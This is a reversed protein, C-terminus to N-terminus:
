TIFRELVYLGEDIAPAIRIFLNARSYVAVNLVEMFGIIYIFNYTINGRTNTDIIKRNMFNKLALYFIFTKIKINFFYVKYQVIYMGFIM